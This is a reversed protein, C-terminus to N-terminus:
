TLRLFNNSLVSCMKLLINPKGLVGGFQSEIAVEISDLLHDFTDVDDTSNLKDRLDQSTRRILYAKQLVENTKELRRLDRSNRYQYLNFGFSALSILIAAISIAFAM